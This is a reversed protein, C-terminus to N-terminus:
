GSRTLQVTANCGRMVKGPVVPDVSSANSAMPLVIGSRRISM